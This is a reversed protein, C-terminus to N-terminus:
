IRVFVEPHQVVAVHVQVVREDDGVRGLEHGDGVRGGHPLGALNADATHLQDPWGSHVKPISHASTDSHLYQM